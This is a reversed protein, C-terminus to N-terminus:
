PPDTPELAGAFAPLEHLPGRAALRLRTGIVRYLFQFQGRELWKDTIPQDRDGNFWLISDLRPAEDELGPWLESKDFRPFSYPYLALVGASARTHGLSQHDLRSEFARYFGARETEPRLEWRWMLGDIGSPPALRLEGNEWSLTASLLM